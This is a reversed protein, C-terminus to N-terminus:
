SFPSLVLSFTAHFGHAKVKRRRFCSTSDNERNKMHKLSKKLLFGNKVVYLLRKGFIQHVKAVIQPFPVLYIMKAIPCRWLFVLPNEVIKAGKEIKHLFELLAGQKSSLAGSKLNKRTNVYFM